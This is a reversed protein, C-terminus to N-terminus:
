LRRWKKSKILFLVLLTSFIALGAPLIMTVIKNVMPLIEALQRNNFLMVKWIPPAYFFVNNENEVPKFYSSGTSTYAIEGFYINRDSYLIDKIYNQGSTSYTSGFHLCTSYSTESTKKIWENNEVRYIHYTFPIPVTYSYVDTYNEFNRAVFCADSTSYNNVLYYLYFYDTGNVDRQLILTTKCNSPKEPLDPLNYFTTDNNNSQVQFVASVKDNLSFLQVFFVLFLFMIIFKNKTM